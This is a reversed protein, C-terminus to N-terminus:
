QRLLFCQLVLGAVRVECVWDLDQAKLVRLRTQETLVLQNAIKHKTALDLDGQNNV